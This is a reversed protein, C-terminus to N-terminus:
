VLSWEVAHFLTVKKTASGSKTPSLAAQSAQQVYEGCFKINPKILHQYLWLNREFTRVTSRNTSWTQIETLCCCNAEPCGTDPVAPCYFYNTGVLLVKMIEIWLSNLFAPFWVMSHCMCSLWFRHWEHAALHVSPNSFGCPQTSLLFSLLALATLPYPYGSGERQKELNGACATHASLWAPMHLKRITDERHRMYSRISLIGIDMGSSSPHLQLSLQFLTCLVM